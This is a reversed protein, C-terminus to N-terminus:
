SRAKGKYFDTERYWKLGRRILVGIVAAVPVAILIGVFGFLVGGALLAFMVWVPHLGVRNGVLRPTLIYGELIQGLIFVTALGTWEGWSLGQMLGLFVSLILGTGFGFYPIFSLIGALLGVLVGYDLGVLFLGLAYFVALSLCVLTQGRIFGSLTRDIEGWLSMIQKEKNKPMLGGIQQQISVWDKLIYFLVVPTILILALINFLAVGSSLIQSLSAGIATLVRTVTGSVSAYIESLQEQSISDKAYALVANIREWIAESFKPIRKMFDVIQSQLLPVLILAIAVVFLCFGVVVLGTSVGRGLKKAVLKEVVPHLIYALVFALIFPMLIARVAGVFLILGLACLILIVNTKTIYTKM